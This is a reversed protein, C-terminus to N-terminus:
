GDCLAPHDARLALAQATTARRTHRELTERESPSLVIRIVPRGRRRM